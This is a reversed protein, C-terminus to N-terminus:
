SHAKQKGKSKEEQEPTSETMLQTFKEIVHAMNKLNILKATKRLTLEEDEHALCAYLLATLTRIDSSNLDLGMLDLGTEEKFIILADFSLYLNREKDLEIPIMSYIEKNM